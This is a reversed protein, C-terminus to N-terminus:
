EEVYGEQKLIEAIEPIVNAKGDTFEIPKNIYFVCNKGYREKLVVNIYEQTDEKVMKLTDAKPRAIYIV